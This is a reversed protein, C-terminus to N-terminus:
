PLPASVFTIGGDFVQVGDVTSEQGQSGAFNLSAPGLTTLGPFFVIGSTGTGRSNWSEFRRPM